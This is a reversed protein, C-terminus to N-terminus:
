SLDTRQTETDGHNEIVTESTKNTESFIVSVAFLLVGIVICSDAVNFAPWHAAGWYCDIFDFVKGERIRDVMNGAAGGLIFSLGTISPLDSKRRSNMALLVGAVLLILLTPLYLFLKPKDDLMSFAGGTNHRYVLDIHNRIVTFTEDGRKDLFAKIASKSWQDLLCLVVALGIGALRIKLNNLANLM